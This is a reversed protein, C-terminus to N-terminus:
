PRKDIRAAAFVAHIWEIQAEELALAGSFGDRRAAAYARDDGQSAPAALAPVGAASAALIVLARAAEIPAAGAQDLGMAARLGAEDFALAALRPTAGAYAGGLALVAAPAGGAFAAIKVAGDPLGAEAERVALKVALQRLNARGACAQLFVGAPAASVLSDLDAEIVDSDVPAVEVFIQPAGSRERGAAIAARALARARRRADDEVCLGLRLLVMDAGCNLAASFDSNDEISLVFCSRM